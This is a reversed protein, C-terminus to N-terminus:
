TPIKAASLLFAQGAPAHLAWICLMAALPITNPGPYYDFYTAIPLFCFLWAVPIVWLHRQREILWLMPIVLLLADYTFLYPPVLLTATALLPARTELGLWWARCVMAVAALAVIAQIALAPAQPMGLFRLSAFVSALENWPWQSNAMGTTFVPLMSFFGEYAGWGLALLAISLAIAASLMGGAIAAWQRGAIMAFPIVLALQPKIVLLGLIAGGAFPRRELTRLGGALISTTLLGNQAILFNALVSPHAMAYPLSSGRGVVAAYITTSVALWLFFALWFPALGVPTVVLLFPPPYAFPLWGDKIPAILEEAAHHAELTYVSALQGTLVLRSAAWYSLFDIALPKTFLIWTAWFAIIVFLISFGVAAARVFRFANIPIIPM